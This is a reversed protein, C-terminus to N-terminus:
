SEKYVAQITNYLDEVAVEKNLFAVAGAEKIAIEVQGVTQVSLGIITTRPLAQAIRRTAEIGDMVPMNVDMLIIDPRVQMALAVAEVGHAAEGVVDIDPYAALLGCLGQRVMAHDDAILVRMRPKATIGAETAPPSVKGAREGSSTESVTGADSKTAKSLLPIILAAKTGRGPHTQLEFRGGLSRLREHISFLGFGPAAGEKATVSSDTPLFGVGEDAVLIHLWGDMEAVTIRARDTGAHKVVNMLLERVSQFLLMAHDEPLAPAGTEVDLSVVLNRQQMQEALWRLAMLLGFEKLLPPSLQAVLSRTYALAQDIVEQVENVTAELAPTGLQRKAQALRIRSLALLQALYDHLETALRGRERQGALNLETALDRLRSQSATLERTRDEVRAELEENMRRLAEEAQKRETIDIVSGIYGLFQGNGGVRPVAADIAWRYEGDRRRIRYEVRFPERQENASLFLDGAAKRDEPHLADLWGLGLGTEETQGTFEYWSRNLYTCQGEGDTVWLMLPSYDAMNRFRAESERLAEEAQRRETINRFFIAVQRNEPLGFRFAYVEFWRGM